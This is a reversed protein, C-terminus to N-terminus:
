TFAETIRSAVGAILLILMVVVEVSAPSDNKLM